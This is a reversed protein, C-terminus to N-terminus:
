YGLNFYAGLFKLIFNQLDKYVKNEYKDKYENYLFARILLQPDTLSKIALIYNKTNSRINFCECLYTRGYKKFIYERPNFEDPNYRINTLYATGGFINLAEVILDLHTKIDISHNRTDLLKHGNDGTHEDDDSHFIFNDCEEPLKGSFNRPTTDIILNYRQSQFENKFDADDTNLGYLKCKKMAKSLKKDLKDPYLFINSLLKTFLRIEKRPYKSLFSFAYSPSGVGIVAIYNSYFLESNLNFWNSLGPTRKPEIYLDKLISNPSPVASGSISIYTIKDSFETIKALQLSSPPGTNPSNHISQNCNTDFYDVLKYRPLFSPFGTNGKFKTVTDKLPHQLGHANMIVKRIVHYKLSTENLNKYVELLEKKNSIYPFKKDIYEIARYIRGANPNKNQLFDGFDTLFWLHSLKTKHDQTWQNKKNYYKALFKYYFDLSSNIFIFREHHEDHHKNQIRYLVQDLYFTVEPNNNSMYYGRLEQLLENLTENKEIFSEFFLNDDDENDDTLDKLDDDDYGNEECFSSFHGKLTPDCASLVSDIKHVTITDYIDQSAHSTAISPILALLLLRKKM